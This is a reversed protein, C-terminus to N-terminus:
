YGALGNARIHRSADASRSMPKSGSTSRESRSRRRSTASPRQPRAEIWRGHSWRGRAREVDLGGAEHLLQSVAEEEDADVQVTVLVNPTRYEGHRALRRGRGTVWVAGFFSGAFAGAAAAGLIVLASAHWALAGGAGLLAGLTGLLAVSALAHYRPALSDPDVADDLTRPAQVARDHEAPKNVYFINVDEERFGDAFLVHAASDATAFSEFRAAVVLSM